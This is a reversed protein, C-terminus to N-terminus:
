DTDSAQRFSSKRRRSASREPCVLADVQLSARARRDDKHRAEADRNKRFRLGLKAFCKEPVEFATRKGGIGKARFDEVLDIRKCRIGVAPRFVFLVNVKTHQVSERIREMIVQVARHDRYESDCM